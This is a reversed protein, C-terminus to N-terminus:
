LGLTCKCRLCYGMMCVGVFALTRKLAYGRGSLCWCAFLLSTVFFDFGVCLLLCWVRLTALLDVFSVDGRCAFVSWLVLIRVYLAYCLVFRLSLCYIFYFCFHLVCFCGYYM